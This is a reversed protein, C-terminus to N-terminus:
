GDTREGKADPDDYCTCVRGDPACSGLGLDTGSSYAAPSDEGWTLVGDSHLAHGNDATLDCQRVPGLSQFRWPCEAPESQDAWGTDTWEHQSYRHTITHGTNLECRYAFRALGPSVSSCRALPTVPEPDATPGDTRHADLYQALANVADQSLHVISQDGLQIVSLALVRSTGPGAEMGNPNAKFPTLELTDSDPDVYEFKQYLGM